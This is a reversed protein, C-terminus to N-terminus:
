LKCVATCERESVGGLRKNIDAGQEVLYRVIDGHGQRAATYLPTRKHPSYIFLLQVPGGHIALYGLMYLPPNLPPPYVGRQLSTIYEQTCLRM